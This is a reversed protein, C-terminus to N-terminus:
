EARRRREANQAVIQRREFIMDVNEASAPGQKEALTSGVLSGPVSPVPFCWSGFHFALGAKRRLALHAPGLQRFRFVAIFLPSDAL